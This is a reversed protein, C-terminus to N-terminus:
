ILSIKIKIQQIIQLIIEIYKVIYCKYYQESMIANREKQMQRVKNMLIEVQGSVQSKINVIYDIEAESKNSNILAQELQLSKETYFLCIQSFYKDINEIQSAYSSHIDIKLCNPSLINDLDKEKDFFMDVNFVGSMEEDKVSQITNFCIDNNINNGITNTSYSFGTTGQSSRPTSGVSHCTTSLNNSLSVFSLHSEKRGKNRNKKSPKKVNFKLFTQFRKKIMKANRNKFFRAIQFWDNGYEEYLRLVESDEEESFKTNKVNPDLKDKYRTEVDRESRDGFQKSIIEWSTGYNEVLEILRIDDKRNWKKKNMDSLLKSYRYACQQPSKTKIHESILRWNKNQTKNIFTM